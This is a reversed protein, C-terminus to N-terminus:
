RAPSAWSPLPKGDVIADAILAGAKVSLAVGHGTYGGAVIVDPNEPLPGILPLYDSTIAIPGGWRAAVAADALAPNLGHIRREIREFVARVERNNVDIQQLQDPAGFMLGGGILLGGDYLPRGWLYPQDITYFPHGSLGLKSRTTDSLPRITLAFTLCSRVGIRLNPLLADLWANTAVILKRPKLTVGDIAVSLPEARIRRVPANEYLRAGAKAAIRALGRVLALPNVVGGTVTEAVHIVRNDDYWPLVRGGNDGHGILWCGPLELGCDIQEEAVLRKLFPVCDDADPRIGEATGELVLGGTRGSAGAGLSEAEFLAVDAGRKALRYAASLGTFGGGVIVIDATEPREILSPPGPSFEDARWPPEGWSRNM